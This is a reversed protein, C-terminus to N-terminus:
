PSLDSDEPVSTRRQRGAHARMRAMAMVPQEDNSRGRWGCGCLSAFQVAVRQQRHGTPVSEGTRRADDVRRHTTSRNTRGPRRRGDAGVYLVAIRDAVRFVDNMNHSILIVGVGEGALRRALTLVVETQSVGLSATREDLIVLQSHWLLSRAIAVAQRQGGSLSGVRQDLSQLTTVALRQMTRASEAEMAAEDLVGFSTPERGLFLNQIVNLNDCLALDQYVTEIGLASAHRPNRIHVENGHWYV